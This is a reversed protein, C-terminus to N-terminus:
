NNELECFAQITNHVHYKKLDIGKCNGNLEGNLMKTFRSYDIKSQSFSFIPRKTLTYDILKSPQQVSNINDINILFDFSSLNFICEERPLLSIVELKEGLQRKYKRIFYMTNSDKIDTFITFKFDINSCKGVLFKFFNDPNRIKKYFLGAYAFHIPKNKQYKALKIQSFDLGQPIIKIYSDEKFVSFEVRAEEIPIVVYDFKKLVLKEIFKHHYYLISKSDPNASFPDGYDAIFVNAINKNLIRAFYVGLHVSFPLGISILRDNANEKKLMKALTFCYEFNNGGLYFIKYIKYIKNKIIKLFSHKRPKMENSHNLKMKANKNLLIGTSVKVIKINYQKEFNSYDFSYDPIYVKVQYGAQALGKALETARFARPVNEPYFYYCAIVISKNKKMCNETDM